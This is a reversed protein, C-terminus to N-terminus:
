KKNQQEQQKRVQEIEEETLQRTGCGLDGQETIVHMNKLEEETM